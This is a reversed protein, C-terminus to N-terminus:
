RQPQQPPEDPLVADSVYRPGFANEAGSVRAIRSKTLLRTFFPIWCIRAWMVNWVFPWSIRQGYPWVFVSMGGSMDTSSWVANTVIPLAIARSM